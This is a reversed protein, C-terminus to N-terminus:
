RDIREKRLSLKRWFGYGLGLGFLTLAVGIALGPLRRGADAVNEGGDHWRTGEGKLLFQVVEPQPPAAPPKPPRARLDAAVVRALAYVVNLLPHDSRLGPTVANQWDELEGSLSSAEARVLFRLVPEDGVLVRHLPSNLENVLVRARDADPRPVAPLRVRVGNAAIEAVCYTWAVEAYLDRLSDASALDNMNRPQLLAPDFPDDRGALRSRVAQHALALNREARRPDLNLARIGWLPLPETPGIRAALAVPPARGALSSSADALCAAEAREEPSFLPAAAALLAEASAAAEAPRNDLLLAWVAGLSAIPGTQKRCNRALSRARAAAALTFVAPDFLELTVDHQAGPEGELRVSESAGTGIAKALELLDDTRDTALIAMATDICQEPTDAAVPDADRYDPDCAARIRRAWPPPVRAALDDPLRHKELAFSWAKARPRLPSDDALTEAARGFRVAAAARDGLEIEVLGRYYDVAGCKAPQQKGPFMLAEAHAAYADRALLLGLARMRHYVLANELRSRLPDAPPPAAAALGTWPLCALGVAM